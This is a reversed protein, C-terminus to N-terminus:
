YTSRRHGNKLTVRKGRSNSTYASLKAAIFTPRHRKPLRYGYSFRSNKRVYFLFARQEEDLSLRKRLRKVITGPVSAFNQLFENRTFFVREIPDM